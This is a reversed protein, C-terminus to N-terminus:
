AAESGDGRSDDHGGARAIQAAVFMPLTVSFRTGIGPRSDVDIRGGMARVLERAEYAGIGFGNSKSSVFPKFLGDRVFDASMGPGSDVIDIRGRVGDSSVDLYVPMGEESADLANQVLHGIAQELAEGDALVEVEATGIVSLAGRDGLSSRVRQALAGLSVRDLSSSGASQYRGLRNMLATLKEASNRLTVLMDARFDPNDAHREANRALLSLQSALNKVDHMVFAIRRSFEDFQRAELLAQHSAREALYSALQRGVLRLLDFDEWDLKRAIPPRALVVLGRLQDFHLLPVAAWARPLDRLWPPLDIPPDCAEPRARQAEVDVIHAAKEVAAAFRAPIARPPVEIEPWNWRAALVMAGDEDPVFLLGSPSEAVEAMARTAREYLDSGDQAPGAQGMTQALRLWETRYDYRHEFLHKIVTVKWWGRLKRSPLWYLAAVVAAFLLGVQTLRQVGDGLLDLSQALIAMAVLYAGILVLSLTRFAVAHSPSLRRAQVEASGGFVVIAGVLGAVIGHFAALGDLTGGLYAITYFNLDYAWFAALGGAPWRLLTRTAPGAGAYLNHVLMLAGVAVLVNLLASIDFAPSDPNALTGRAALAIALQLGTVFVLSFVLPRVAQMLHHRGDAAFLRYLVAIWAVDRAAALAVGLGHGAGLAAVALCWAGTAALAGLTWGRHPIAVRRNRLLWGASVTCALAGALHLFFGVFQWGAALGTM